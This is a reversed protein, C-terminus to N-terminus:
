VQPLLSTWELNSEEEEESYMPEDEESYVSDEEEV